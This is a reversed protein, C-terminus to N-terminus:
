RWMGKRSRWAGARKWDSGTASSPAPTRAADQQYRAIAAVVLVDDLASPDTPPLHETLWDATIFGTDYVGSRFRADDFVALFFPISTPVGVLHYDLLARRSRAIADARDTGWVVLKAIMPDYHIPVEMGEVVGSDVRVWPGTPERYGHLPGPAPRFNAEADEAYIRCEIAHGRQVLDAQGIWLAVGPVVVRIGPGALCHCWM